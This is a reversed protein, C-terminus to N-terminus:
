AFEASQRVSPHKSNLLSELESTFITLNLYDTINAAYSAQSPHDNFFRLNQLILWAMPTYDPDNKIRKKIFIGPLKSNRGSLADNVVLQELAYFAEVQVYQDPSNLMLLLWPIIEQEESERLISIGKRQEIPNASLLYKVAKPFEELIRIANLSEIYELYELRLEEESYLRPYGTSLQQALCTFSISTLM